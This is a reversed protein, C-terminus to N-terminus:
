GEGQTLWTISQSHPRTWAPPTSDLALLSRLPPHRRHSRPTTRCCAPPLPDLRALLSPDCSVAHALREYSPSVGHGDFEAQETATTLEFM